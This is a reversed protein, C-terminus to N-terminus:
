RANRSGFLGSSGYVLDFWNHYLVTKRSVSHLNLLWSPDWNARNDNVVCGRELTCCAEAILTLM